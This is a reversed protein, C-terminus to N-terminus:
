YLVHRGNVVSAPEPDHLAHHAAESRTGLDIVSIGNDFRTAVYLLGHDENLVLGSPGGGPITIHDAASPTFTDAELQATSFVGVESSGFAAVYLTTGDGSVAMGLPIALSADAVGVPSPVVDYDIHKNLHRPLVNTGDL